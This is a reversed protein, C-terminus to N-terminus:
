YRRIQPQNGVDFSNLFEEIHEANVVFVSNEKERAIENYNFNFEKYLEPEIDTQLQKRFRLFPVETFKSDNIIGDSTSIQEPSFECVNLKATTVIVNFYIRLDHFKNLANKEENAFAETSTVLTAATRELMPKSKSDQGRVISYECEPSSPDIALNMWYFKKLFDKNERSTWQSVWAKTHRRNNLEGQSNLFLWTTDLVRKCEVVLVIVGGSWELILDIFGSENNLKWAHESYIVRWGQHSTNKRGIKHELAIQLPFGSKNVIDESNM